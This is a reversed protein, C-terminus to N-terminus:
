GARPGAWSGVGRVRPGAGALLALRPASRSRALEGCAASVSSRAQATALAWRSLTIRSAAAAPILKGRMWSIVPMALVVMM